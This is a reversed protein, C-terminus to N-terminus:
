KAKPSATSFCGYSDVSLVSSGSLTEVEIKFFDEVAQLRIPGVSAKEADSIGFDDLNCIYKGKTGKEVMQAYFMAWLLKYAPDSYVEPVKTGENFLLWGWKEPMHMDVLTTPSWVWNEEEEQGPIWEVRSFNIRWADLEEPHTFGMMLSSHPIAMEAYWFHSDHSTRVILGPCNWPMYFDGGNRYPRNMMLDMVTGIANIEIEFYSQGDGDPDIFVEFDNEKWIITDRQKLNAVIKDEEIKAGIYLYNADWLMKVRTNKSPVKDTAIDVFNESWRAEQWDKESLCGDMVISGKTHHCVYVRPDKLRASYRQVIGEEGGGASGSCGAVIGAAVFVIFILKKM